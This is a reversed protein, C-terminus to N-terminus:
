KTRGVKRMLVVPSEGRIHGFLPLHIQRVSSSPPRLLVVPKRLTQNGWSDVTTPTGPLGPGGAAGGALTSALVPLTEAVVRQGRPTARWAFTIIGCYSMINIGERILSSAQFPRPSGSSCSCGRSGHTAQGLCGSGGWRHVAAPAGPGAPAPAALHAAPPGLAPTPGAVVWHAGAVATVAITGGGRTCGAVGLAATLLGAERVDGLDQCEKRATLPPHDEQPEQPLL